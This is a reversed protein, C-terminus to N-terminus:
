RYLDSINESLAKNYSGFLKMLMKQEDAPFSKFANMESEIVLDVTKKCLETGKDTLHIEKSRKDKTHRLQILGDHELKKLASNVTQRPQYLCNCVNSQTLPAEEARVSYLIWFSCESLGLKKSINRYIENNEKFMHNFQNFLGSNEQPM